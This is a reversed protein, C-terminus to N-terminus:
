KEGNCVFWKGVNNSHEFIYYQLRDPIMSIDFIKTNSGVLTTNPHNAIYKDITGLNKPKGLTPELAAIKYHMPIVIKPKLQALVKKTEDEKLIHYTDDIPLLLIDIDQLIAVMASDIPGNDGWHCIRLGGVEFVFITNKQDFEKGYPDCHKGKYGTIKFGGVQYSGPNQYFPM